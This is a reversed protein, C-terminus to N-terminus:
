LFTLMISYFYIGLKGMCWCTKRLKLCNQELIAVMLQTMLKLIKMLLKEADVVRKGDEKKAQVPLKRKRVVLNRMIVTVILILSRLYIKIEMVLQKGVNVLNKLLLIKRNLFIFFLFCIVLIIFFFSVFINKSM